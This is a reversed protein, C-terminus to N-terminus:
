AAARSSSRWQLKPELWLWTRRIMDHTIEHCVTIGGAMGACAKYVRSPATPATFHESCQNCYRGVFGQASASLRPRYIAPRLPRLKRWNVRAPVAPQLLHLEGGRATATTPADSSSDRHPSVSLSSGMRPQIHWELHSGRTSRGGANRLGPIHLPMSLADRITV